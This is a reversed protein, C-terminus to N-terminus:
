REPWLMAGDALGTGSGSQGGWIAMARGTWLAAHRYRNRVPPDALMTWRDDGPHYAAGDGYALGGGPFSGGWVIMAHGSWVASHDVRGSLPGHAIGRWVGTNPDYAGADAAYTDCPSTTCPSRVGGWVIMEAGTWVVSHAYGPM